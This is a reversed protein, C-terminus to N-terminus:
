QAAMRRKLSERFIEKQERSMGELSCDGVGWEAGRECYKDRIEQEHKEANEKSRKLLEQLLPSSQFKSDYEEYKKRSEEQIRKLFESQPLSPLGFSELGTAGSLIGAEVSPTCTSIVLCAALPALLPLIPFSSGRDCPSSLMSAMPSSSSKRVSSFTPTPPPSVLVSAMALALAM